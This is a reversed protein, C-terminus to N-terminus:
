KRDCTDVPADYEYDFILDSKLQINGNWKASKKEQSQSEGCKYIDIAEQMAAEINAAYGEPYLLGLAEQLKVEPEEDGMIIKEFIMMTRFDTDIFFVKGDVTVTEPLTDLLM